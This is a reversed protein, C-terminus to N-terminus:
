DGVLRQLSVQSYDIYTVRLYEGSQFGFDHSLTVTTRTGDDFRVFVKLGQLQQGSNGDYPHQTYEVIGNASWPFADAALLKLAPAEVTGVITPAKNENPEAEDKGGSVLASEASQENEGILNQDKKTTVGNVVTGIKSQLSAIPPSITKKLSSIHPLEILVMYLTLFMVILLVRVLLLLGPREEKNKSLILSAAVLLLIIGGISSLGSDVSNRPTSTSRTFDSTGSKSRSLIYSSSTSDGHSPTYEYPSDDDTSIEEPSDDEAAAWPEQKIEGIYSSDGNCNPCAESFLSLTFPSGCDLCFIKGCDNCRHIGDGAHTNGCGSNPCKEFKGSFYEETSPMIHVGKSLPALLM